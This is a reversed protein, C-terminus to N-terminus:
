CQDLTVPVGGGNLLSMRALRTQMDPAPFKKYLDLMTQPILDDRTNGRRFNEPADAVSKHINVGNVPVHRLQRGKLSALLFDWDEYIIMDTRYRLPAVVDSRYIMCSNPIRNLIYVSEANLPSIDLPTGSLRTPPSQTRDENVVSFSCFLLEPKGAGIHEALSQLHGPEFTDDDDLFIVYPTKVLELGMNRSEAPGKAGSRIIYTYRGDLASMEPFPPIYAASDDVVIVQFDKYTQDILSQLTRRLLLPREHTPIIITFM